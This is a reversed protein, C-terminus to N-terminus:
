RAFLTVWGIGVAAGGIACAVEVMLAEQGIASGCTRCRGRQIAYSVLPLLEYWRLERGCGDCRSRGRLAGRWGRSRVVGLFSGLVM